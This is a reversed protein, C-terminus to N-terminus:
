SSTPNKTYIFGRATSQKKNQLYLISIGRQSFIFLDTQYFSIIKKFQGQIM